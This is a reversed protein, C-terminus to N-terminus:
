EEKITKYIRKRPDYEVAVPGGCSVCKIDFMRDTMNTMYRANMGCQCNIWAPTFKEMFVETNGCRSCYLSSIFQKSTFTRIAGCAKCQIHLFGKYEKPEEFHYQISIKNVKRMSM